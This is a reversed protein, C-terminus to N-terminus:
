DRAIISVVCAITADDRTYEYRVRADNDNRLEILSTTRADNRAIANRMRRRAIKENVNHARAIECLTVRDNTMARANRSRENNTTNTTNTDNTTNTNKTNTMEDDNRRTANANHTQSTHVVCAIMMRVVHLRVFIIM